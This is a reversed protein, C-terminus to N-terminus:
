VDKITTSNGESADNAPRDHSVTHRVSVKRLVRITDFDKHAHMQNRKTCTLGHPYGSSHGMSHHMSHHM